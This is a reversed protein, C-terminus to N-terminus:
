GTRVSLSVNVIGLKALVSIAAILIHFSRHLRETSCSFFFLDLSVLNNHYM